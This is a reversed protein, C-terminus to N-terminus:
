RNCDINKWVVLGYNYNASAVDRCGNGDLDGVAIPMRSFWTAYPGKFAHEQDLAGNRQPFYGLIGGSRIVLLDTKGDGNVDAAVSKDPYNSSDVPKTSPLKTAAQFVGAPGQAFMFADGGNFDPDNGSMVLDDLGDGNFDGVTMPSMYWLRIGEPRPIFLKTPFQGTGNGFRIEAGQPEEGPVKDKSISVVLDSLGDGNMDGTRLAFAGNTEMFYQRAYAGERDGYYVTIGWPPPYLGTQDQTVVDMRGDRDADLFVVADGSPAGTTNAIRQVTYARDRRGYVISIGERRGVVIDAIGDANIDAAGIATRRRIFGLDDGEEGLSSYALALPSALTGDAMQHFIYLRYDTSPNSGQDTMTTAVIADDRGDGDIDAVEVVDPWADPWAPM